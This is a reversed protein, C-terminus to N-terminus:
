HAPKFAETAAQENAAYTDAAATLRDAHRTARDGWSQCRTTTFHDAWRALAPGSRAGGAAARIEAIEAEYGSM